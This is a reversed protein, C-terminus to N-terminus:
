FIELGLTPPELGEVGALTRSANCFSESPVTSGMHPKTALVAQVAWPNIRIFLGTREGEREAAM